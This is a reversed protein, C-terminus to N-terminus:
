ILLSSGQTSDEAPSEALLRAVQRPTAAAILEAYGIRPGHRAQITAVLAGIQATGAGFLILSDDAGFHEIGLAEAFQQACWAEDPSLPVDNASEGTPVEQLLAQRDIKGSPTLPMGALVVIRAPLMYSPLRTAAFTKITAELAHDPPAANAREAADSADNAEQNGSGGVAARLTVFAVLRAEPTTLDCALVAADRVRPHDSLASEVEGLEIRYGRLKCQHDLRGLYELEGNRLRRVKDGTRYARGVPVDVFREATRAPQGFYGAALGSGSLYLEGPLGDPLPRRQQDLVHAATGEIPYGITVHSTDEILKATSYTTDESPGYLNRIRAQPASSRVRTVLASQLAEGALNIARVRAPLECHRLVEELLSPVTNILSVDAARPDDILALANEVVTIGGGLSLTMFIEFISLDFCMSTAALVNRLDADDYTAAAWRHLWYLSEHRIAVGKPRGTSGSTYIIYALDDPAVPTLPVVACTSNADPATLTLLPQGIGLGDATEIADVLVLAPNADELIAAIRQKPYNPDLPVYVAGLLQTALLVAPLADGRRVLVGVREGGLTGHARMAEAHAHAQNWLGRYTVRRGDAGHIATADPTSRVRQAVLEVISEFEQGPQRDVVPAGWSALIIDGLPLDPRLAISEQTARLAGALAEIVHDSYRGRDYEIIWEADLASTSVAIALPYKASANCMPMTRLTPTRSADTDADTREVVSFLVQSWPPLADQTRPAALADLQCSQHELDTVITAFVDVALASFPATQDVLLRLPLTNAFFGIVDHFATESRNAVPIALVLDSQQLCRSLTSAVLSIWCAFESVGERRALARLAEVAGSSVPVRCQGAAGLVVADHRDFSLATQEPAGQLRRKWHNLGAELVRAQAESRQWRVADDFDRSKEPLIEGRYLAMLESKLVELSRGDFFIHHINLLLLERGDQLRLLTARFANGAELDFIRRSERALREDLQEPALREVELAWAVDEEPYQEAEGDVDRIRLRLSLHRARLNRLAADLRAPDLEGQWAFLMPVNYAASSQLRQLFWLRQQERSLPFSGVRAHAVEDGVGQGDPRVADRDGRALISALARLVPTSMLTHLDVRYGHRIGLQAQVRLCSLSSGGLRFFHADAHTAGTCLVDQWITAIAVCAEAERPDAIETFADAAAPQQQVGSSSPSAALEAIAPPAEETRAETALTLGAALDSLMPLRLLTRLDVRYGLRAELGAQVRLCALSGGGLRFFHSDDRIEDVGLVERWISAIASCATRYRASALMEADAATSDPPAHRPVDPALEGLRRGPAGALAALCRRYALDLTTAVSEDLVAADIEWHLSIMGGDDHVGLMLPFKAVTPPAERRTVRVPGLDRMREPHSQWAFVARQLPNGDRGDALGLDRLLRDSDVEAHALGHRLEDQVSRLWARVDCGADPAFPLPLMSAHYGLWDQAGAMSRNACPMSMVFRPSGTFLHLLWAYVGLAVAVPTVGATTALAHLASHEDDHLVSRVTRATEAPLANRCPRLPLPEHGSLRERWYDIDRDHEAMATLYGSFDSIPVPAGPDAYANCLSAWAVELSWGDTVIHPLNWQLLHRDPALPLMRAVLGADRSLDFQRRSQEELWGAEDACAEGADEWQVRWQPDPQAEQELLDGHEIIRAHLSAHARYVRTMATDFRARDLEGDLVFACQVNYATDAPDLRHRNWLLRQRPSLLARHITGAETTSAQNAAPAGHASLVAAVAALTSAQLLHHFRLDAGFAANVEALMRMALLSNGGGIFFDEDSSTVSRGLLGSWIVALRSETPDLAGSGFAPGVGECLSSLRARDLKGNPTIPMEGIALIEAPRQYAPLREALHAELTEHWDDDGIVDDLALTVVCVIKQLSGRKVAISVADRVLPHTRLIGDIASLEIRQGNIKVQGDRRGVFHLLGQEDFFGHDGTRYCRQLRDDLWRTPFAQDTLEDQGVYGRALGPGTAVVEGIVGHPVPEGDADLVHVGTGRVARGVPLPRNVPWDRPIPFCATFTTNETPGYGNTIRLGDTDGRAHLRAVHDPSVVDGGVLLQRLGAFVSADIDVLTNFLASTLWATDVGRGTIAERLVAPTLVGDQVLICAGGHLLPAWLELTFADFDIPAACLMRLESGFTAYDQGIVLRLIGADTCAIAKPVGTTGSSFNIYAVSDASRTCAAVAFEECGDRMAEAVPDTCAIGAWETDAPGICHRLNLRLRLEQRRQEPVNVPVPVYAAGAKLIALLAVIREIGAPMLVGVYDGDVVGAHRLRASAADSHRDLEAYTCVQEGCELATVGGHALLIARFRTLLDGEAEPAPAVVRTRDAIARDRDSFLPLRALARSPSALAARLLTVYRVHLDRVTAASLREGAYEWVLTWQDDAEDVILSLPFKAKSPFRSQRELLLGEIHPRRHRQMAFFAQFPRPDGEEDSDLRAAVQELPADQYGLAALNESEVRTAYTAFSDGPVIRARLVVTNAFCGMVGGAADETRNAVPHGILFEEGGGVRHLLTKYAAYLLSFRGIRNERSYASLAQVVDQPLAAGFCGDARDDGNHAPWRLRRTAGRLQDVWYDVAAAGGDAQQGSLMAIFQPAPAAFAPVHDNCRAVYAQAVEDFFVELSRGDVLLHHCAMVYAHDDAGLRHLGHRVLIGDMPSSVAQAYDALVSPLSSADVHEMSMAPVTRDELYQYLRGDREEFATVFVGHRLMVEEVADRWHAVDLQGRMRYSAVVAYADSTDDATGSLWWLRQQTSGAPVRQGVAVEPLSPELSSLYTLLAQKCTRIADVTDSDVPSRTARITLRDGDASLLIGRGALESIFGACDFVANM